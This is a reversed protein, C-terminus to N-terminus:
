HGIATTKFVVLANVRGRPNSDWVRRWVRRWGAAADLAGTADCAATPPPDAPAPQAGDANGPQRRRSVAGLIIKVASGLIVLDAVMQGTVMQGTVVPRAAETNATIDGIGATSPVTVASYRGDTHTLRGGVNSAPTTAMVVGTSASPPLFLPVSTALAEIARLGPLPSRILARAQSAVLGTFAALGTVPV